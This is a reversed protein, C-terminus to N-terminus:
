NLGLYFSPSHIIKGLILDISICVNSLKLLYLNKLIKVQSLLSRRIVLLGRTNFDGKEGKKGLTHSNKLNLKKENIWIAETELLM